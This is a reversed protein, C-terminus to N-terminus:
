IKHLLALYKQKLKIVSSFESYRNVVILEDTKKFSDMEVLFVLLVESKKLLNSILCKWNYFQPNGHSLVQQLINKNIKPYIISYAKNIRLCLLFPCSSNTRSSM